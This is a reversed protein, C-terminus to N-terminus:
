NKRLPVSPDYPMPASQCDSFGLHSLVKEMYHSQLLTVGGNDERLPKINLIVDAEGMDKM